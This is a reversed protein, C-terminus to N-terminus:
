LVFLCVIFPSLLAHQLPCTQPLLLWPKITKLPQPSDSSGTLNILMFLECGYLLVSALKVYPFIVVLFYPSMGSPCSKQQMIVSQTQMDLQSKDFMQEENDLFGTYPNRLKQKDLWTKEKKSLHFKLIKQTCGDWKSITRPALRLHNREKSHYTILILNISGHKSGGLLHHM